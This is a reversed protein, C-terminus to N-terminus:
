GKLKRDLEATHALTEALASEANRYFNLVQRPPTTPDIVPIMGVGFIYNLGGSPAHAGIFGVEEIVLRARNAVGELAGQDFHPALTAAVHKRVRDLNRGHMTQVEGTIKEAAPLVASMLEVAREQAGSTAKEILAIQVTLSVMDASIAKVDELVSLGPKRMLARLEAERANKTAQTEALLDCLRELEIVADATTTKQNPTNM